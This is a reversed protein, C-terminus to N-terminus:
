KIACKLFLERLVSEDAKSQGLLAKFAWVYNMQFDILRKLSFKNATLALRACAYWSNQTFVNYNSKNSAEKFYEQYKIALAEFSGTSAGRQSVPLAGSNILARLQILLSTQNQLSSLVPRASAAKNTFFYRTLAKNALDLDGSFFANTIDFFEGEGFVSVNELVIKETIQGEYNVYAALRNLDSIAMRPSMAVLNTLAYIAAPSIEVGLKKAELKILKECAESPDKAKLDIFNSVKSIDKFVKKRRDANSLSIILNVDSGELTKIAELLNGLAEQTTESKGTTTDAIFNLARLWILKNPEFMSVTMMSSIAQRIVKQAEDVTNVSASIIEKSYEDHIDVSLEEYLSRAANEAIFEDDAVILHCKGM